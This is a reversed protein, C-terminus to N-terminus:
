SASTPIAGPKKFLFRGRRFFSIKDFFFIQITMSLWIMNTVVKTWGIPEEVTDFCGCNMNVGRFINVVVFITFLFLLGGAVFTAAKIRLGIILYFGCVLELWPLVIAVLNLGYYPVLRYNAVNEAFLAPDPIKSLSAEIFIWGIYIRLM